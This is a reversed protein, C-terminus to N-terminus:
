KRIVEKKVGAVADTRGKRIAKMALEKFGCTDWMGKAKELTVNKMCNCFAGKYFMNFYSSNTDIDKETAM